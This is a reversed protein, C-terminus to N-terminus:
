RFILLDIHRQGKSTFVWQQGKPFVLGSCPHKRRVETDVSLIEYKATKKLKPDRVPTARIPIGSFSLDLDWADPDGAGELNEDILEPFRDLWDLKSRHVRVQCLVPLASIYQVMEFQGAHDQRLIEAADLGLLNLGNWPGHLNNGDRYWHKFWGNFRSNIQLGIEFHLHARWSAIGDSTNTTRGLVGLEDGGAVDQGVKLEDPVSKLHAYLTFYQFGDAKHTVVVYKGYNSAATNRNIHVISGAAAARVPDIPEENEDRKISLIDIGEHLRTGSNRVCGFSGSSWPRATTTPAFFQEESNEQLLSRNDTPFQFWRKPKAPASEVSDNAPPAPHPKCGTLGVTLVIGWFARIM